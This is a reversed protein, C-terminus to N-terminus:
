EQTDIDDLENLTRREGKKGRQTTHGGYLNGYRDISYTDHIDGFPLDLDNSLIVKDTSIKINGGGPCGGSSLLEYLGGYQMQQTNFSGRRIEYMQLNQELNM